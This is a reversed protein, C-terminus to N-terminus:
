QRRRKTEGTQPRRERDGGRGRQDADGSRLGHNLVRRRQVLPGVCLAVDNEVDRPRHRRRRTRVTDVPHLARFRERLAALREGSEPGSKVAPLQWVARGERQFAFAVEPFALAALM